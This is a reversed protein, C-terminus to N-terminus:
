CTGPPGVGQLQTQATEHTGRLTVAAQQLAPLCPLPIAHHGASRSPLESFKRMFPKFEKTLFDLHPMLVM